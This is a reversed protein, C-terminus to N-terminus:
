QADVFLRHLLELTLVKHIEATYNRNGKLHGMVVREVGKRDLYPRSLTKSDLLMQRVYESLRDRYWLRFHYIKHRGLFAREIRFSSLLHDVRALWQPMGYDYAYEAKFTFEQLNPLAFHSFRGLRADNRDSPIRCLAANGDKILRVRVDNNTFASKPARFATRVVDNDLFPTRVTLQSQELALTGYHHWPVQRFANFSLPHEQVLHTYTMRAQRIQAVLEAEFLGPAPEVPKFARSHRLMEDGYLGTMRVPAIERAKESVYLDPCRLLDVCGDTLYVSREAYRPFQSLFEEGVTIVTHPQQCIGAVRKALIVDRCSRFAGGYTYCPFSGPPVKQWAIVARTDLGGSLSMGIREHGNLYRPLNRSFVARLERYYCEPDMPEQEEWQRPCFYRDESRKSGERFSWASAPPLVRIDPFLTRNELVCGCAVFEGLSRPDTRRFERHIALLAKAEAAFCFAEKCEHYYLRHIGYRDNFLLAKRRARDILLGHFRGNLSVPFVTPNGEYQHVIYCPGKEKLTHEREKVSYAVGLDSFEEGSFALLVDGQENSIPMADCFSGKLAVWGLYIGMSEDIWTGSTYFAEHRLAEVMRLLQPEAWERPMNTLLGVIGPM